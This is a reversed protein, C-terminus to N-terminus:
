NGRGRGRGGKSVTHRPNPTLNWRFPEDRWGNGARGLGNAGGQIVNTSGAAATDSASIDEVQMPDLNPRSKNTSNGKEFAREKVASAQPLSAEKDEMRKIEPM